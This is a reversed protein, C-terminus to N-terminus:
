RGINLLQLLARGISALVTDETKKTTKIFLIPDVRSKGDRISFHLHPGTSYGSSGSLGIIQGRRVIEGLSVEFNSLHLYLSFIGLGHDIILTKGYNALKSALVVKGDNVAYVRTGLPVGLDVGFHQLEYDKARVFGGFDLGAKRIKSLPFSFSRTFYPKTTFSALVKNLAPADKTEMDEAIKKETFGKNQLEETIVMESVPFNKKQVEIEKEMEKGSVNLIIKYNGPEMKVDIGLFAVSDSSEEPHFFDITEGNFVGSINDFLRGKVKVLVTEGQKPNDPYIYLNPEPSLNKRWFSFVLLGLCLIILFAISISFFLFNKGRKKTEKRRKKGRKRTM